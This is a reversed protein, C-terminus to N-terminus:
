EEPVQGQESNAASEVQQLIEQEQDPTLNPAVDATDGGCGSLLMCFSVTLMLLCISRMVNAKWSYASFAMRALTLRKALPDPFTGGMVWSGNM